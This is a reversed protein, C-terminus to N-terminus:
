QKGGVDFRQLKDKDKIYLSGGVIAPSSWIEGADSVQWKGLPIYAATDGQILHLEGSKTLVLLRNGAVTVSVFESLRPSTWTTKGSAMEVCTLRRTRQDLGILHDKFVVPTVMYPSLDANRWLTTQTVKGGERRIQLANTPKAEGTVIVVDKWLVPTIITQQFGAAFPFDWLVERKDLSLGVMRLGTFGVIQPTGALTATVPSAYSSREPLASWLMKGTKRDFATFAGAKKGGVPIIVQEKIVLASAANGCVPFAADDGDATKEVGWYEAAFDHKWLIKGTKVEICHFMGGLGLMYVRDGDLTPTSNPGRGARPDPPQFACPYAIRWLRKGTDADFCLCTEQGDAERGQIFVRGGAAVPSSYGEGVAVSWRAAPMKEPWKDPLKSGVAVGDRGPGRWQPWEQGRCSAALGCFVMLLTIFRKM